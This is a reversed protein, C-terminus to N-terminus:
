VREKLGALLMDVYEEASKQCAEWPLGDTIHQSIWGRVALFSFWARKRAVPHFEGEKEGWAFALLRFLDDMRERQYSELGPPEGDFLLKHHRPRELGLRMWHLLFDRVGKGSTEALEAHMWAVDRDLLQRILDAKDEFHYYLAKHTYGLESAIKRMTVSEYGQEAFLRRACDLAQLRDVVRRRSM